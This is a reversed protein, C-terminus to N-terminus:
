TMSPESAIAESTGLSWCEWPTYVSGWPGQRSEVLCFSEATWIVPDALEFRSRDSRGKRALTVHARYNRSEAPFGAAALRSGLGSVLERLPDPTLDARLCVIGNGPWIEVRDFRLVFRAGAADAGVRRLNPWLGEDVPGLFALTLHLNEPRVWKGTARQRAWTSVEALRSRLIEDPWLAYFLRASKGKDM